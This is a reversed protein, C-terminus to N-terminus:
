ATVIMALLELAKISLDDRGKVHARLGNRADDDFGIRWWLRTELCLRGM